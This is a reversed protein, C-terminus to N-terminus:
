GLLLQALLTGTTIKRVQKISIIELLFMFTLLLKASNFIGLYRAILFLLRKNINTVIKLFVFPM